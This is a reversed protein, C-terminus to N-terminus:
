RRKKTSRGKKVGGQNALPGLRGSKRVVRGRRVPRQNSARRRKRPM